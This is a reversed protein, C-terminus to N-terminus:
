LASLYGALAAIDADTLRRAIRNMVGAASNHREGSRWDLLQKELYRWEQGAIIPSRGAGSKGDAGHCGVCAAIDRAADGNLFLKRGEPHDAGGDGRMPKQSSFYAAIDALDADSISNAMMTMTDDKREGSRFNRIQKVIYEPYQGALKAFKGETSNSHGMGQGASGHCEQCRESDSKVLGAAPDGKPLAAAVKAVGANAAPRAKPAAALASALMASLLLCAIAFRKM